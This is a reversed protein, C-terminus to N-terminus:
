KGSSTVHAHVLQNLSDRNFVLCSHIKSFINFLHENYRLNGALNLTFYCELQHSAANCRLDIDTEDMLRRGRPAKVKKRADPFLKELEATMEALPDPSDGRVKLSAMLKPDKGVTRYLKSNRTKLLPEQQPQGTVQPRFEVQGSRYLTAIGKYSGIKENDNTM